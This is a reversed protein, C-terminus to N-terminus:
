FIIALSIFISFVACDERWLCVQHVQIGGSLAPQNIKGIVELLRLYVGKPESTVASQRWNSIRTGHMIHM